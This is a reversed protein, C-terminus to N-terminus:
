RTAGRPSATAASAGRSARESTRRAPRRRPPPPPSRSPSRPATRSARPPSPHPPPGRSPTPAVRGPAPPPSARPPPTPRRWRPRRRPTARRRRALRSRRLPPSRAGRSSSRPSRARGPLSGARRRACCPSSSSYSSSAPPPPPPLLLPNSRRLRSAERGSGRSRDPEARSAARPPTGRGSGSGQGGPEPSRASGSPPCSFFGTPPPCLGRRYETPSKQEPQTDKEGAGRARACPASADNRRTLAAMEAARSASSRKSASASADCAPADSADRSAVARAHLPRRLQRVRLPPLPALRRRRRRHLAREPSVLRARRHSRRRTGAALAPAKARRRPVVRLAKRRRLARPPVLFWRSPVLFGPGRPVAARFFSAFRAVRPASGSSGGGPLFFGRPPLRARPSRAGSFSPPNPNSNEFSFAPPRPSREDEGPAERLGPARRLGPPAGPSLFLSLARFAAAVERPDEAPFGRAVRGPAPGAGPPPSRRLVVLAPRRSADQVPKQVMVRVADRLPEQALRPLRRALGGRARGRARGERRRRPLGRAVGDEVRRARVGRRVESRSPPPRPGSITGHRRVNRNFLM